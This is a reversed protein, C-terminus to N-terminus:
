VAIAVHGGGPASGIPLTEVPAVFRDANTLWLFSNEEQDAGPPALYLCGIVVFWPTGIFSFNCHFRFAAPWACLTRLRDVM